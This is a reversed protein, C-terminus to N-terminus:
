ENIHGHVLLFLSGVGFLFFVFLFIKGSTMHNFFNVILCKKDNDSKNM